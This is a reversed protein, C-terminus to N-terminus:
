CHGLTFYNISGYMRAPDTGDETGVGSRSSGSDGSTELPIWTELTDGAEMGGFGGTFLNATYITQCFYCFLIDCQGSM